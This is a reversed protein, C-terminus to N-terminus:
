FDEMRVFALQSPHLTIGMANLLCIQFGATYNGSVEFSLQGSGASEGRRDGGGRILEASRQGQDLSAPHGGNIHINRGRSGLDYMVVNSSFRSAGSARGARRLIDQAHSPTIGKKKNAKM